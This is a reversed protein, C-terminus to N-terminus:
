SHATDLDYAWIRNPKWELWQPWDPRPTPERPPPGPLILGEDALVRRVTSESVHVLGIRSGRHALKRHSRDIHGWTEFLKIVAAQKAELIAHLPNVGPPLDDLRGSRRPRGLPPLPRSGARAPCM